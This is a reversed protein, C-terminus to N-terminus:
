CVGFLISAEYVTDLNEISDLIHRTPTDASVHPIDLQRFKDIWILLNTYHINYVLVQEIRQRAEQELSKIRIDNYSLSWFKKSANLIENFPFQLLIVKMKEMILTLMSRTYDSIPEAFELQLLSYSERYLGNWM